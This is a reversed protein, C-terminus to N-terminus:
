ANKASLCHIENSVLQNSSDVDPIECGYCCNNAYSHQIKWIACTVISKGYLVSAVKHFILYVKARQDAWAFYKIHSYLVNVYDNVCYCKFHM